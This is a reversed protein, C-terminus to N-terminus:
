CPRPRSAKWSCRTSDVHCRTSKTVDALDALNTLDALDTLDTVNALNTLWPALTVTPAMPTFVGAVGKPCRPSSKMNVCLSGM